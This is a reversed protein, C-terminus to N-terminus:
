KVRMSRSNEVRYAWVRQKLCVPSISLRMTLQSCLVQNHQTCTGRQQECLLAQVLRWIFQGSSDRLKCADGETTNAKEEEILLGQNRVSPFFQQQAWWVKRKPNGVSQNYDDDDVVRWGDHLRPSMTAPSFRAAPPRHRRDVNNGQHPCRKHLSHRVVRAMRPSVRLDPRGSRVIVANHHRKERPLM